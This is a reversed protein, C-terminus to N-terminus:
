LLMDIPNTLLDHLFPKVKEDYLPIAFYIM